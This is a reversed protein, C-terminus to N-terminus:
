LTKWQSLFVLICFIHSYPFFANNLGIDYQRNHSGRGERLPGEIRTSIRIIAGKMYKYSDRISKSERERKKILSKKNFKCLIM